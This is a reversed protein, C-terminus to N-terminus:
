IIVVVSVLLVWRCRCGGDLMRVVAAPVTPRGPKGDRLIGLLLKPTDPTHLLKGLGCV